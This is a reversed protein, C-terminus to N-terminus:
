STVFFMLATLWAVDSVPEVAVWTSDADSSSALCASCRFPVISFKKDSMLAAQALTLKRPYARAGLDPDM